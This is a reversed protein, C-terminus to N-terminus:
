FILLNVLIISSDQVHRLKLVKKLFRSKLLVKKFNNKAM